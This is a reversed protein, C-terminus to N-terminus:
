SKKKAKKAQAEGKIRQAARGSPKAPDYAPNPTSFKAGVQKQWAHLEALLRTTIEPQTKSLDSKEGIDTVVNFLEVRGDEYWEILKHDGRRIAAERTHLLRPNEGLVYGIAWWIKPRFSSSWAL